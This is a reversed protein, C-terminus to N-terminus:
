KTGTKDQPQALKRLFDHSLTFFRPTPGLDEFIPDGQDDEAIIKGGPVYPMAAELEDLAAHLLDALIEEETCNPFMVRLAQIRAMDRLPLHLSQPLSGTYSAEHRHWRNLLDSIRM